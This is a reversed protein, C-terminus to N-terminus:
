ECTPLHEYKKKCYLESEILKDIGGIKELIAQMGDYFADAAANIEKQKLDQINQTLWVIFDNSNLTAAKEAIIDVSTKM